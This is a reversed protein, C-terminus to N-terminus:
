MLVGSWSGTGHEPEPCALEPFSCHIHSKKKLLETHINPYCRELMFSTSKQCPEPRIKAKGEPRSYGSLEKSYRQNELLELGLLSGKCGLLEQIGLDGGAKSWSRRLARQEVWESAIFLATFM